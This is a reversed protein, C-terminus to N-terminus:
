DVQATSHRKTLMYRRRTACYEAYGYKVLRKWVVEAKPAQYEAELWFCSEANTSSYLTQPIKMHVLLLCAEPVGCGYYAEASEMTQSVARLEDVIVVRGNFAAEQTTNRGRERASIEVAAFPSGTTYESRPTHDLRVVFETIIGGRGIASICHESM